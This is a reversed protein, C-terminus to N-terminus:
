QFVCRCATMREVIDEQRGTQERLVFADFIYGSQVISSQLNMAVKGKPSMVASCKRMTIGHSQPIVYINMSSFKIILNIVVVPGWYKSSKKCYLVCDSKM